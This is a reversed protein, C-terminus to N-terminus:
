TTPKTQPMHSDIPKTITAIATTTTRIFAMGFLIAQWATMANFMRDNELSNKL